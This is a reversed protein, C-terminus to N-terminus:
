VKPAHVDGQPTFNTGSDPAPPNSADVDRVHGNAPTPLKGTSHSRPPTGADVRSAPGAKLSALGKQFLQGKDKLLLFIGAAGAAALAIGGWNSKKKHKM